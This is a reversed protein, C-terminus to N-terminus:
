PFGVGAAFNLSAYLGSVVGRPVVVPRIRRRAARNITGFLSRFSINEANLIYRKGSVGKRWALLHGEVADEVDVVGTMGPPAALLLGRHALQFLRRFNGLREGAGIITSPCLAVVRQARHAGALVYRESLRKSDAYPIHYLNPPFSVEEGVPPSNPSVGVAMTSSTLIFESVGARVAAEFIRITGNVNVRYVESHRRASYSVVGAVHFVTTIGALAEELLDPDYFSGDVREIKEMPLFPHFAHQRLIVRVPYNEAVLRRVLASGLQGSAGTVLIRSM